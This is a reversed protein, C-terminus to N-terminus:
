SAAIRQSVIVKPCQNVEVTFLRVEDSPWASVLSTFVELQRQSTTYETAVFAVLGATEGLGAIAADFNDSCLPVIPATAEEAQAAPVSLLSLLVALM